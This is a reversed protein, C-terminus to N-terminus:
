QIFGRLAPAFQVLAIAGFTTYAVRELMSVKGEVKDMRSEHNKRWEELSRMRGERVGEAYTHEELPM